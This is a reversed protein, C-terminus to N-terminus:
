PLFAYGREEMRFRLPLTVMLTRVQESDIRGGEVILSAGIIPVGDSDVVTGTITREQASANYSAVGAFALSMLLVIRGLTVSVTLNLKSFM